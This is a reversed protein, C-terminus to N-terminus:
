RPTAACCVPKGFRGVAVVLAVGGRALVARQVVLDSRRRKAGVACKDEREALVGHPIRGGVPTPWSGLERELVGRGRWVGALRPGIRCLHEPQGVMRVPGTEREPMVGAILARRTDKGKLRSVHLSGAPAAALSKPGSPKWPRTRWERATTVTLQTFAHSSPGPASSHGGPDVGGRGPSSPFPPRMQEAVSGAGPHSRCSWRAVESQGCGTRLVSSLHPLM